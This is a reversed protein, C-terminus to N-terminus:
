ENLDIRILIINDKIENKIKDQPIFGNHSHKEWLKVSVGNISTPRSLYKDIAYQPLSSLLIERESIYGLKIRSIYKGNIARNFVTRRCKGVLKTAITISLWINNPNSKMPNKSPQHFNLSM